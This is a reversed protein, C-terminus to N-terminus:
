GKKRALMVGDGVTLLCFDVRPDRAIKLNLARLANTDEDQVTPDAVRGSWIMNDFAMLGGPRLLALCSEYYVDYAPKDADIFAFDFTGGAGAALLLGLSDAASGMRLDIKDAVGAEAWYRRAIDTWEESIDCAVMQGGPPLASAITLASMGTFVGVEVVRRGGTLRVLFALLAGLDSHSQMRAEPLQRTEERLRAQLATERHIQGRIFEQVAVPFM